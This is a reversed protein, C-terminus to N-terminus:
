PHPRDGERRRKPPEIMGLQARLKDAATKAKTMNPAPQVPEDPTRGDGGWEERLPEM